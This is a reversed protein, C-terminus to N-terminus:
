AAVTRRHAVERLADFELTLAATFAHLDPLGDWDANLGWYLGGAYSFIALGLGQSRFLPVTPYFARLPAGLLYLPIQPGPVNTVVLNYTLGRLAFQVISALVSPAFRDALTELLEGGRVQASRKLMQMHDLVRHYRTEVDAGDVPLRAIMNAVRNGVVGHEDAAHLSVPVLVRFDLGDPLVSRELLFRRVAGAVTALVVDNVTGGLARKVAKVQDLDFRVWDCRRHPGIPPNLPTVSAAGTSAGVVDAMGRMTDVLPGIATWPRLATQAALRATDVVAAGRRWAEDAVLRAASPRTRPAWAPGPLFATDPVPSLLATLLGMGAIGDVMAHHAKAVMAIRGGELGEIFWIEWLPKTRDLKQSLIRGLLRKLRRESGPPPLAAHRVHYFINFRADDVWVPHRQYPIYALRQRYRPVLHMRSQLYGRIREVDLRGEADRLPEGDFVLTAAVHMHCNEDEIGLFMADLASLREYHAM